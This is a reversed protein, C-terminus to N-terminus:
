LRALTRMGGVVQLRVYDCLMLLTEGAHLTGNPPGFRFAEYFVLEPEPEPRPSRVVAKGGAPRVPVPFSYEPDTIQLNPSLSIMRMRRLTATMAGVVLPENHKDINSLRQLLRLPHREYGDREFQAPQLQMVWTAAGVPLNHRIWAERERQQHTSKHPTWIPFKVKLGAGGARSGTWLAWIANDMASRLHHVCDSAILGLSEPPDRITAVWRFGGRRRDEFPGSLQAPSTGYWRAAARHFAKRHRDAHKLRREVRAYAKPLDRGAM